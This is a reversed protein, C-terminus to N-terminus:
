GDRRRQVSGRNRPAPPKLSWGAEGPRIKEVKEVGCCDSACGECSSSPSRVTRALRRILYVLAGAVLAMVVVWQWM